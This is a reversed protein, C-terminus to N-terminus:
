FMRFTIHSCLGASVSVYVYMCLYIRSSLLVKQKAFDLFDCRKDSSTVMFFIFIISAPREFFWQTITYEHILKKLKTDNELM